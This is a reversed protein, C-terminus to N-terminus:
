TKILFHVAKCRPYNNNSGSVAGTHGHGGGSGFVSSWGVAHVVGLTLSPLNDSYTALNPWDQYTHLHAPCEWWELTHQEITVSGSWATTATGGLTKLSYTGGMPLSGRMDPAGGAGNCYLFGDPPTSIDGHWMIISNTPVSSALIEAKTKGNLYAADTGAQGGPVVWYRAAYQAITYYDGSHDVALMEEDLEDAQTELHHLNTASLPTAADWTTKTYAM